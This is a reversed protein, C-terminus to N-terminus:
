TLVSYLKRVLMSGTTKTDILHRVRHVDSRIAEERRSEVVVDIDDEAGSEETFVMTRFANPAELDQVPNTHSLIVSDGWISTISSTLGEEATNEYQGAIVVRPIRFARAIMEADLVGERTYQFKSTLSSHEFLVELVDNTIIMLNPELGSGDRFAKRQANVDAIPDSGSADWKTGPSASPVTGADVLAKVALEHNYRVVVQARRIAAVDADFQSAYKSRQTDDVAVEHGFDSCNFSDSALQMGSTTYSAGPARDINTPRNLYNEKSFVPYSGAQVGTRFTPALASGAWNAGDSWWESAIASLAPNFGSSSTIM